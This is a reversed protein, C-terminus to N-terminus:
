LMVVPIVPLVLLAGFYRPDRAWYTLSRATVAGLPTSPLRRFWGPVRAARERPRRRTARQSRAVRIMWLVALVGIVLLGFRVDRAVLEGPATAEHIPARWLAGFPTAELVDFVVPARLPAPALVVPLSWRWMSGPLQEAAWPVLQAALFLAGALLVLAALVKTVLSLVPRFALASGLAVGLRAALLGELVILPAVWWAMQNAAGSWYATPALALAVLLI